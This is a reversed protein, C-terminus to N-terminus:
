LHDELFVKNGRNESDNRAGNSYMYIYIATNRASFVKLFTKKVTTSNSHIESSRETNYHGVNLRGFPALGDQHHMDPRSGKRSGM